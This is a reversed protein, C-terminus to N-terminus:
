LLTEPFTLPVAFYKERLWLALLGISALDFPQRREGRRMPLTLRKRLERIDDSEPTTNEYSLVVADNADTM